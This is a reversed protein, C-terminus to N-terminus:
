GFIGFAGSPPTMRTGKRNDCVISIVSYHKSHTSATIGSADGLAMKLKNRLVAKPDGEKGTMATGKSGVARIFTYTCTNGKTVPGEVVSNTLEPYQMAYVTKVDDPSMAPNPDPLTIGNYGFKRTLNVVKM